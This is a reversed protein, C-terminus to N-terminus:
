KSAEELEGIVLSRLRGLPVSGDHCGHKTPSTVTLKGLKRWGFTM